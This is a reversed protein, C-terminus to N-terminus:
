GVPLVLERFLHELMAAPDDCMGTHIPSPQIV